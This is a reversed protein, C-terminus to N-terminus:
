SNRTYIHIETTVGNCEVTLTVGGPQHKLWTCSCETTDDSVNLQVVSDDSVTWKFRAGAFDGAPVAQAKLKVTESPALTFETLEKEFFYVKVADPKPTPTPSPTPPTEVTPISAIVTEEPPAPTVRSSTGAENGDLGKLGTSVMIIVALIVAAVLILGFIMQWKTNTEARDSAPTGKVTAPTAAPTRGSQTVRRTGCNPCRSRLASYHEGCRYCEVEPIISM